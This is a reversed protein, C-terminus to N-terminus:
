RLLRRTYFVSDVKRKIAYAAAVKMGYEWFLKVNEVLPTKSEFGLVTRVYYISLFDNAKDNGIENVILHIYELPIIKHQKTDKAHELIAVARQQFVKSSFTGIDSFQWHRRPTKKWRVFDDFKVDVYVFPKLLDFSERSEEPYSMVWEKYTEKLRSTDPM